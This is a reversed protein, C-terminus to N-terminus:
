SCRLMQCVVCSESADTGFMQIVTQVEGRVSITLLNSGNMEAGCVFFAGESYKAIESM